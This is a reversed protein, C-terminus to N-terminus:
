ISLCSGEHDRAKHKEKEPLRWETRVSGLESIKLLRAMAQLIFGLEKASGQRGGVGGQRARSGWNEAIEGGPAAGVRAGGRRTKTGKKM